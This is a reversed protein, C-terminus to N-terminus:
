RNENPVVERSWIFSPNPIFYGEASLIFLPNPNPTPYRIDDWHWRHIPNIAYRYRVASAQGGIDTWIEFHLHPGSSVGTNGSLAIVDGADVPHNIGVMFSDYDLHMYLSHYGNPHAIRITEGGAFWSGRHRIHGEKMAYIRTGTPTGVDVGWHNSGGNFYRWGFPSVIHVDRNHTPVPWFLEVESSPEGRTIQLVANSGQDGLTTILVEQGATLTHTISHRNLGLNEPVVNQYIFDISNNAERLVYFLHLHAAGYAIFVHEGSHEAVFRFLGEGDDFSRFTSNNLEDVQAFALVDILRHMWRMERFDGATVGSPTVVRFLLGAADARSVYAHPDLRRGTQGSPLLHPTGTAVQARNLRSVSAQLFQQVVRYYDSFYSANLRANANFPVGQLRTFGSINQLPSRYLRELSYLAHINTIDLTTDGSQSILGMQIAINVYDQLSFTGAQLGFTLRTAMAMFQEITTLTEPEFTTLTMGLIVGRRVLDYIAPAAWHNPSVDTFHTEAVFSDGIPLFLGRSVPQVTNFLALELLQENLHELSSYIIINPHAARLATENSVYTEAMLLYVVSGRSELEQLQEILATTLTDTLLIIVQQTNVGLISSEARELLNALDVQISPQLNALHFSINEATSLSMTNHSDVLSFYTNSATLSPFAALMQTLEDLNAVTNDLAFAVTAPLNSNFIAPTPAVPLAMFFPSNVSATFTASLTPDILLSDNGKLYVAVRDVQGLSDGVGIIVRVNRGATDPNSSFTFGAADAQYVDLDEFTGENSHWFFFPTEARSDLTVNTLSLNVRYVGELYSLMEIEIDDIFPAVLEDLDYRFQQTFETGHRPVPVPESPPLRDPGRGWILVGNYFVEINEWYIHHAIAPQGAFSFNESQFFDNHRNTHLRANIYATHHTQLLGGTFGVEFFYNAQKYGIGIPVFTGTISNVPISAWDIHYVQGYDGQLTYFYRIVLNALNIDQHATIRFWPDLHSLREGINPNRFQVSVPLNHINEPPLNPEYWSGGGGPSGGSGGGNSSGGNGEVPGVVGYLRINQVNLTSGTATGGITVFHNQGPWIYIQSSPVQSIVVTGTSSEITGHSTTLVTGNDLEFYIRWNRIVYGQSINVISIGHSFEADDDWQSHYRFEATYLYSPVRSVTSALTVVQFPLSLVLMLGTMTLAVVQTLKCRQNM